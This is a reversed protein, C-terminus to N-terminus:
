TSIERAEESARDMDPQSFEEVLPKLEQLTLRCMARETELDGYGTRGRMGETKVASISGTM